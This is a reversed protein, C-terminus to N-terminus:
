RYKGEPDLEERLISLERRRPPDLRKLDSSVKLEWGVESLVQALEVGPYLGTLIMEREPPPFGFVGKDTVVVEPGRTPPDAFKEQGPDPRHGPTTIFDVREVFTRRSLETIVMIRQVNLAIDCAGGSGPLRVKPQYYSGIVTTNLNGWRDIQATGLLAAAIRRGQLYYLFFDAMPMVMAAGTVLTPDGISIPLREPRAGMVGSEYVLDIDPAVTRRALNCAINPRGVGVLVSRTGQLARSAAIIMMEAPTYATTM